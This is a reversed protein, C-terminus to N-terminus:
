QVYRVSISDLYRPNQQSEKKVENLFNMFRALQEKAKGLRHLGLKSEGIAVIKCDSIRGIVIDLEGMTHHQKVYRSTYEIGGTHFYEQPPYEKELDVLALLELVEGETDFDFDKEVYRSM